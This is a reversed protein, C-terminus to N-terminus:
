CLHHSRTESTYTYVGAPKVWTWSNSLTGTPHLRKFVVSRGFEETVPERGVGTDVADGAELLVNAVNQSRARM